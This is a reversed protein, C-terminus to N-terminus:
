EEEAGAMGWITMCYQSMLVNVNCLYEFIKCLDSFKLWIALCIIVLIVSSKINYLHCYEGSKDVSDCFAQWFRLKQKRSFSLNIRFNMHFHLPGLVALVIKFFFLTFVWVEQISFKGCLWLLWSSTISVYLFVYLDHFLLTWFLCKYKHGVWKEVLTDLYNM